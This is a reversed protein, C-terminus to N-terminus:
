LKSELIQRFAEVFSRDRLPADGHGTRWMETFGPVGAEGWIRVTDYMVHQRAQIADLLEARDNQILGYSDCFLRLRRAYEGLDAESEAGPMGDYYIPVFRWAAYAVDWLAPAPAAFDWDIFAVPLHNRYVTNWPALDNHCIIEGSTPAGPCTRWLADPPPEFSRVADHYARLLKAASALAGDSWIEAPIDPAYPVFGEIYSLSERGEADIGLVRPSGEFGSRELHRLLAHVAATWPGTSRRVTEGIRYVAAM